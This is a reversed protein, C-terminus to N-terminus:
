ELKDNIYEQIHDIDKIIRETMAKYQGCVEAFNLEQLLKTDLHQMTYRISGLPNTLMGNIKALENRTEQEIM